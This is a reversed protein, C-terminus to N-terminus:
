LRCHLGCEQNENQKAIDQYNISFPLKHKVMFNILNVESWYFLPAIKKIDNPADTQVGLSRRHETEEERIGTIWYSPQLEDLARKFPELKIEDVFEGYGPEEPAPNFGIAARHAVSRKPHYIHLNLELLQQLQECHQYTEDTNYGTDVWVIPTNPAIDSVM